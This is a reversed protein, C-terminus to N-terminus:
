WGCTRGRNQEELWGMLPKFYAMMAGADMKRTGAVAELADPWPQSAGMALMKSLREGAEKSGYISCTYLPGQHGSAECLAQHFQFQLVHALFYRMYPTNGPIHYKAGPDFADEPRAVAPHIGQYERRLEWWASTYREPPIEGSFVQWRWKDIMRGFPLFAIKALADQLQKNIVGHETESVTDLLGIEKLYGPTISLALTDGIGEHFGDNAGNQFLVPLRTYYHYYYNHGLEHHITILDEYDIKICMKIRLDDNIDVDWASAHCVVERDAPKTFMSREWFTQPLPDLGLSTFFSEATRVMKLHDYSKAQLAATVDLSPEDPYPILDDYLNDWSQAWMNGLLHAPITGGPPVVEPGYKKSLEARVHCHLQEYLPKVEQWLREVEADFAKPDMDYGSRWLEGTDAFGLGRAGENSLSVFEAYQSRLPVAISHWGSWAALQEDYNDSSALVQEAHGLDHCVKADGEGECYEGKGYAGQMETLVAALRSRKAADDPAPATTGIKLLHLQRAVEPSLGQVGNFEAARKIAQTMYAMSAEEAAQAAAAHEDTIDTAYTWQARGSAVWLERLKVDVEKVFAEAEAATPGAVEPPPAPTPEATPTGGTCAMLTLLLASCRRQSTSLRTTMAM